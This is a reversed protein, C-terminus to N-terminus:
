SGSEGGLKGDSAVVAIPRGSAGTIATGTTEPSRVRVAVADDAFLEPHEETLM